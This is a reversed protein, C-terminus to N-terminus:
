CITNQRDSNAPANMKQTSASHCPRDSGARTRPAPRAPRIEAQKRAAVNKKKMKESLWVVTALAAARMLVPGSNRATAAQAKRPSIGRVPVQSAMAAASAPVASM